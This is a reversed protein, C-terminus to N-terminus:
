WLRTFIQGKPTKTGWSSNVHVKKIGLNRVIVIGKPFNGLVIHSQQDTSARAKETLVDQSLQKSSLTAYNLIDVIYNKVYWATHENNLVLYFFLKKHEYQKIYWNM